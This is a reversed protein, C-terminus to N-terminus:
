ADMIALTYEERRARVQEMTLGGYSVGLYFLLLRGRGEGFQQAIKIKNVWFVAGGTIGFCNSVGTSHM